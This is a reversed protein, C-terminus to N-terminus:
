RPDVWAADVGRVHFLQNQGDFPVAGDANTRYGLAPLKDRSGHGDLWLVSATDLHRPDVATRSQPTGDFEAMEGDAPDVNPPDLNFGENGYREADRGNDLYDMRPPVAALGAQPLPFSAATGMCDAVAVCRSPTRVADMLVPWNKFSTPDDEDWLRSNGLFQYNYGYCGNREDRWRDVAPCIYVPSAYNQRDSPEGFRDTGSKIPRPDAFPPVGVYSGMMALFTPRYKLGGAIETQWDIGNGLNPMRSPPLAGNHDLAYMVLGQGLTRLRTLCLTARSQQRGHSLATVFVGILLAIISVVVLLEVLTFARKPPKGNMAPVVTRVRLLGRAIM